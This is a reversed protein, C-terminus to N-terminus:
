IKYHEIFQEVGENKKNFECKLDSVNTLGFFYTPKDNKSKRIYYIMYLTFYCPSSMSNIIFLKKINCLKRMMDIYNNYIDINTKLPFGIPFEAKIYTKEMNQINNINNIFDDQIYNLEFPKFPDIGIYKTIDKLGIKNFFKPQRPSDIFKGDFYFSLKCKEEKNYNYYGISEIEGTSMYADYCNGLFLIVVDNSKLSNIADYVLNFNKPTTENTYIFPPEVNSAMNIYIKNDNNFKKIAEIFKDYDFDNNDM